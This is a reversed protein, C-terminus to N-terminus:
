QPVMCNNIMHKIYTVVNYVDLVLFGNINGELNEICAIIEIVLNIEFYIFTVTLVHYQPVCDNIM